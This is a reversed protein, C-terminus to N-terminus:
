FFYYVINTEYILEISIIFFLLMRLVKPDYKNEIEM